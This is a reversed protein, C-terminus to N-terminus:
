HSVSTPNSLINSMTTHIKLALRLRPGQRQDTEKVQQNSTNILHNAQKLYHKRFSKNSAHSSVKRTNSALAPNSQPGNKLM